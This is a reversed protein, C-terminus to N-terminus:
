KQIKVKGHNIKTNLRQLLREYFYTTYWFYWWNKNETFMKNNEIAIFYDVIGWIRRWANNQHTITNGRNLNRKRWTKNIEKLTNICAQFLIKTQRIKKTLSSFTQFSSSHFFEEGKHNWWKRLTKKIESQFHMLLFRFFPKTWFSSWICNNKM